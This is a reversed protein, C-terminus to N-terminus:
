QHTSENWDILVLPAWLSLDCHSSIMHEMMIMMVAYMNFMTSMRFFSFEEVTQGGAVTLSM